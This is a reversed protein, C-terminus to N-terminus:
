RRRHIFNCRVISTPKNPLLALPVKRNRGRGAHQISDLLCMIVGGGRGEGGALCESRRNLSCVRDIRQQQNLLPTILAKKCTEKHCTSCGDRVEELWASGPICLSEVGVDREKKHMATTGGSKAVPEDQHIGAAYARRESPVDVYRTSREGIKKGVMWTGRRGSARNAQETM